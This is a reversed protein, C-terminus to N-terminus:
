KKPTYPLRVTKLRSGNFEARFKPFNYYIATPSLSDNTTASPRFSQM